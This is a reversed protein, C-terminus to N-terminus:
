GPTPVDLDTSSLAPDPVSRTTLRDTGTRRDPEPMKFGAVHEAVTSPMSDALDAELADLDEISIEGDGIETRADDLKEQFELLETRELALADRADINTKFEEWTPATASIEDPHVVDPSVLEGFEDYVEAGDETRFVRRGDPLVHAQGLLFEIRALVEDMAEQNQMLAKVVAIDFETLQTKFDEIRKSPAPPSLAVAALLGTASADAADELDDRKEKDERARRFERRRRRDADIRSHRNSQQFTQALDIM